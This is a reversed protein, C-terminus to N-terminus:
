AAARRACAADSETRAVDEDLPASGSGPPPSPASGAPASPSASPPPSGPGKTERSSEAGPPPAGGGSTGTDEAVSLTVHAGARTRAGRVDRSDALSRKLRDVDCIAAKGTGGYLGPADGQRPGGHVPRSRVGADRGPGRREALFPTLSAVGAAAARVDFM